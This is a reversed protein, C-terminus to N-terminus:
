FQALEEKLAERFFDAYRHYGEQNFHVGDAVFISDDRLPAYDM